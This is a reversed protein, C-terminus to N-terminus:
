LRSAACVSITIVSNQQIYSFKVTRRIQRGFLNHTLCRELNEGNSDQGTCQGNQHVKKQPEGGNRWAFKPITSKILTSRSLRTPIAIRQMSSPRPISDRHLRFKRCGPAKGADQLIPVTNKGPHFAAPPTANVMWGM